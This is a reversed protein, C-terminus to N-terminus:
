GDATCPVAIAGKMTTTAAVGPTHLENRFSASARVKFVGDSCRAALYSQKRGDRVFTRRIRLNFGLLSGSGNAIPPIKAVTHLGGHPRKEM